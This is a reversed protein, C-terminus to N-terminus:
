RQTWRAPNHAVDRLREIRDRVAASFCAEEEPSAGAAKLAAAIQQNRIRGLYQMLWQVDEVRIGRTIDATHQGSYGWEVFGNKIGRLFEENQSRYGKCDWKSRTVVNGWKGMSGGWDPIFYLYRADHRRYSEFVSTNADRDVDRADKDDWDSMLMIMIKLGNLEKTGQFPNNIWSWNYRKSYIARQSRLQFRANSFAGDKGIVSAARTLGHVATVRGKPVFYEPEAIYGVAWVLRSAFNESHVEPGFKASWEIGRHDRVRIKPSSGGSEEKVVRFPPTPRLGRGPGTALDNLEVRGPNLWLVQDLKSHASGAQLYDLLYLLASVALM